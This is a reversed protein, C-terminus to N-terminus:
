SGNSVVNNKEKKIADHMLIKYKTYWKKRIYIFIWQSRFTIQVEIMDILNFHM